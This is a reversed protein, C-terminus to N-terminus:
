PGGDVLRYLANVTFRHGEDLEVRVTETPEAPRFGHEAFSADHEDASLLVMPRDDRWRYVHEQEEIRPLAKGEPRSDPSFDSVLVRGRPVLVRRIEELTADWEAMSEATQLVGLAVVLHFADDGFPRLDWMTGLRVRAASEAAGLKEAVRARTRAVMAESRDLAWVDVGEDALWATNRGGACGLDLVRFTPPDEMGAVIERLRVDPDRHTFREVIEPREWFSDGGPM